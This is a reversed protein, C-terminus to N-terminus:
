AFLDVRSLWGKLNDKQKPDNAVLEKYFQKRAQILKGLLSAENWHNVAAITTKGVKGDPTVGVIRQLAETADDWSTVQWDFTFTAIKQSEILDGKFADWFNVKYFSRVLSTLEPDNIIENRKLPKHKDVLKWGLWNPHWKRSIGCYTEGGKDSKLNSYGGENKRVIKYAQLFEAMENKIEWGDL